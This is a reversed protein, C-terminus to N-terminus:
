PRHLPYLFRTCIYIVNPPLPLQNCSARQAGDQTGIAENVKSLAQQEQDEHQMKIRKLIPVASYESRPAVYNPRTLMSAESIAGLADKIADGLVELDEQRKSIEISSENARIMRRSLCAQRMRWNDNDIVLSNLRRSILSDKVHASQSSLSLTLTHM